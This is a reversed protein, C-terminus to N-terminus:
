NGLKLRTTTWTTIKKYVKCALRAIFRFGNDWWSRSIGARLSGSLGCCFRGFLCILSDCIVPCFRSKTRLRWLLGQSRSREPLLRRCHFKEGLIWQADQRNWTRPVAPFILFFFLSRVPALSRVPVAKQSGPSNSGTWVLGSSNSSAAKNRWNFRGDVSIRWSFSVKRKPSLLFKKFVM